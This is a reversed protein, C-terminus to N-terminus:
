AVKPLHIIKGPSKKPTINFYASADEEAVLARYHRALVDLGQWHGLQAAVYGADKKIAMLCSAYTHRAVDKPWTKLGAKHMANERHDRYWSTSAVIDGVGRYATLWKLANEPIDIIRSSRTKVQEGELRISKNSLDINSWKLRMMEHPRLGCFFLVAFAPVLEPEHRETARMLNTVTTNDWISPPKDDRHGRKRKVGNNFNILTLGARTYNKATVGKWGRKQVWEAIDERSLSITARDPHDEVLLKLKRHAEKISIDRCGDQRMDEVLRAVTEGLREAANDPYRRRYERAAEVLTAGDGLIALADMADRRQRDTLNFGAVGLNMREVVIQEAYAKAEPLTKFSKRREIGGARYDILFRNEALHRIIVGNVKTTKAKKRKHKNGNTGKM